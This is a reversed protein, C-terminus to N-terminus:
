RRRVANYSDNLSFLSSVGLVVSGACAIWNACTAATRLASGVGYASVGGQFLNYPTSKSLDNTPQGITFRTQPQLTAFAPQLQMGQRVQPAPAITFRPVETAPVSSQAQTEFRGFGQNILAPSFQGISRYGEVENRYSEQPSVQDYNGQYAGAPVPRYLSGGNQFPAPIEQQYGDNHVPPPIPMPATQVSGNPIPQPLAHSGAGNYVPPPLGSSQASHNIPEPLPPATWGVFVQASVPSPIGFAALVLMSALNRM